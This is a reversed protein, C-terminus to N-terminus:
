FATRGTKVTELAAERHLREILELLIREGGAPLDALTNLHTYSLIRGPQSPAFYREDSQTDRLEEGQNSGRSVLLTSIPSYEETLYTNVWSKLMHKKTLAERYMSETIGGTEITKWAAKANNNVLPLRGDNTRSYAKMFPGGLDRYSEWYVIKRYLDGFEDGMDRLLEGTAPNQRHNSFEEKTEEWLSDLIVYERRVGLSTELKRVFNEFIGDATATADGSSADKTMTDHDKNVIIKLRAVTDLSKALSQMSAADIAGTTPRGGYVGNADAPLRISGGTDTGIAFDLWDYAAVASASGGSSDSPTQLGDARPNMNLLYDTNQWHYPGAFAFESLKNKGVFVAGMKQLVEVIGEPKHNSAEQDKQRELYQKDRISVWARSGLSPSGLGEIYFIDKVSFRLGALPREPTTPQSQLRSPVAVSLHNLKRKLFGNEWVDDTRRWKEFLGQLEEFTVRREGGPEDGTVLIEVVTLPEIDKWSSTADGIRRSHRLCAPTSAHSSSSLRRTLTALSWVANERDFFYTRDGLVVAEALSHTAHDLPM